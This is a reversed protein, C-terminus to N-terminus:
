VVSKESALNLERRTVFLMTIYCSLGGIVNSVPEALFVGMADFGLAPLLFTLPVVIIIKRFISFFIAQKKKNLSKFVTQGCNQFTQFVFAAFYCKMASVGVEIMQGDHTFIHLLTGPFVLILLWAAVSYSLAVATLIIIAKRVKTYDRAGYNYSLIPSVGDCFADVPTSFIQRESNIITMISVYLDGGYGSLLKNCVVSVACNTCQMVFSSIGLSVINVATRLEIHWGDEFHIRLEARSSRLFRLVLLCSVAQSLVTAFAAGSVGMGLVFIFVPDLVINLVTGILIVTMSTRAFGQSNIFPTMGLAIMNFLTGLVYIRMYSVAYGINVSSAGFLRMLPECFAFVLVTLIIATVALLRFSTNMIQEAEKKNDRGRAMSCLPAGGTGYLNAFGTIIIIVPFCLGVGGLAHTGSGEIRGIYIRDVINYLLNLLQAAIIPLSARFCNRLLNDGGFDIQSSKVSFGERLVLLFVLSYRIIISSFSLPYLRLLKLFIKKWNRLEKQFVSSVGQCIKARLRIYNTIQFLRQLLPTRANRQCLPSDAPQFAAEPLFRTSPLKLAPYSFRSKASM